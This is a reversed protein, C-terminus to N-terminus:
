KFSVQIFLLFSFKKAKQNNIEVWLTEYEEELASLDNRVLHDLQSNVYIACGDCSNKSPQTYMSYGQM